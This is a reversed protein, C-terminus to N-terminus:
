RSGRRHFLGTIAQSAVQASYRLGPHPDTLSLIGGAALGRWSDLWQLLSTEGRLIEPPTLVLDSAILMWRKGHTQATVPTVPEGLVDRYAVHALNAGCLTALHQWQYNRANVEMLKFQGDRPDLKFEVQSIGWFGLARLLRLGLEAVIPAPYSEGVRCTGFVRPNQRLKRGTFQALVEGHPNLYSGYTYLQASDGPIIEQFMMQYGHAAGRQYYERAQKPRQAVFGKVGFTEAFRAHYVPKAIIPYPMERAVSAADTESRPFRTAPLPVGLEQAVSYQGRKDIIRRLVTWRAFPFLFHQELRQQNRSVTSVHEDQTLYLVGPRMLEEGLHDLFDLFASEQPGPDPCVVARTVYRSAFGIAGPRPDLAVVPVGAQGLSRILGLGNAWAVGIVIAAPREIQAVDDLIRSM